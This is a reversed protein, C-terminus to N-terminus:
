DRVFAERWKPKFLGLAIEIFYVEIPDIAKGFLASELSQYSNVGLKAKLELTSLPCAVM